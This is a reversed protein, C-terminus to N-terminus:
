ISNFRKQKRISILFGIGYDMLVAFFGTFILGAFLYNVFYYFQQAWYVKGSIVLVMILSILMITFTFLARRSALRCSEFLSNGAFYVIISTFIFFLSGGLFIIIYLLNLNIILSWGLVPKVLIWFLAGFLSGILALIFNYFRFFRIFNINYKDINLQRINSHYSVYKNTM